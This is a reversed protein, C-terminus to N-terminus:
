AAQLRFTRPTTGTWRKFSRHFASPESYGLLFAVDGLAVARDRLLALAMSRRTEDVEVLFTTGEAALRRQLTRPPLHLVDAVVRLSPTGSGLAAWIAARVKSRISEGRLLSALVQDAYKGLYGALTADAGAVPRDADSARLVLAATPAGFQVPCRFYERHALTSRPTAYTFRVETPALDAGALHRLSGVIAAIRFDQALRVGAGLDPHTLRLGVSHQDEVLSFQVAESFIRGYRALRRLADRVTPSFRVVYGLLGAAGVPFAAGSRIGFAPDSVRQSLMQWLAIEAALSVHSDPDALQEPQLEATALLVSRPLGASVGVDIVRALARLSVTGVRTVRAGSAGSRRASRRESAPVNGGDAHSDRM